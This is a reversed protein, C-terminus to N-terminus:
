QVLPLSRPARAPRAAPPAALSASGPSARWRGDLPVAALSHKFAAVIEVQLFEGTPDGSAELHV